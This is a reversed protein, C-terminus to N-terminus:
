VQKNLVDKNYWIRILKDLPNQFFKCSKELSSLEEIVKDAKQEEMPVM